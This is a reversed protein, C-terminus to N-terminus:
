RATAEFIRGELQEIANRVEPPMAVSRNRSYDFVVLVSDVTAVVAEQAESMVAHEMRFSSKGIRTVRSGVRVRDPYTVPREYSIAMSALIPGVGTDDRLKWLGIRNLYEVRASECWRLYVINNVHQFADQDGWQVPLPLVVPFDDLPDRIENM